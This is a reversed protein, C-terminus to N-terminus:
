TCDSDRPPPSSTTDAPRAPPFFSPSPSTAAQVYYRDRASAVFPPTVVVSVTGTGSIVGTTLLVVGSGVALNVGGHHGAYRRAGEPAIERRSM